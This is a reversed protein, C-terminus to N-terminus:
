RSRDLSVCHIRSRTKPLLLLSYEQIPFSIHQNTTNSKSATYAIYTPLDMNYMQQQIPAFVQQQLQQHGYTPPVISPFTTQPQFMQSQM